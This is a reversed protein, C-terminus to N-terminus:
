CCAKGISAQPFSGTAAQSLFGAAQSAPGACRESAIHILGGLHSDYEIAPSYTDFYSTQAPPRLADLTPCSRSPPGPPQKEPSGVAAGHM